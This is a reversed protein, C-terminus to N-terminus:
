GVGEESFSTSVDISFSEESSLRPFREEKNLSEGPLGEFASPQGSCPSELAGPGVCRVEACPEGRPDLRRGPKLLVLGPCSGDNALEPAKDWGERSKSRERACSTDVSLWEFVLLWRTLGGCYGTCRWHSKGLLRGDGLDYIAGLLSYITSSRVASFFRVPLGESFVGPVSGYGM